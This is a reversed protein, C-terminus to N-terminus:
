FWIVFDHFSNFMFKMIINIITAFVIIIVIIIHPLMLFTVQNQSDDDDEREAYNPQASFARRHSCLTRSSFTTQPLLAKFRQM